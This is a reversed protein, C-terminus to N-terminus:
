WLVVRYTCPMWKPISIWISWSFGAGGHDGSFRWNLFKLIHFQLFKPQMYVSNSKEFGHLSSELWTTPQHYRINTKVTYSPMEWRQLNNIAYLPQSASSLLPM